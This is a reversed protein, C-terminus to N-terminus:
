HLIQTWSTKQFVSLARFFRSRGPSIACYNVQKSPNQQLEVMVSFHWSTEMGSRLFESNTISLNLFHIVFHICMRRFNTILIYTASCKIMFHLPIVIVPLLAQSYWQSNTFINLINFLQPLLLFLLSLFNHSIMIFCCFHFFVVLVQLCLHPLADCFASWQNM